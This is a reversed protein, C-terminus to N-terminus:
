ISEEPVKIQTAYIPDSLMIFTDCLQLKGLTQKKFTM